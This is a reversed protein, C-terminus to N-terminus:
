SLKKTQKVRGKTGSIGWLGELGNNRDTGGEEGRDEDEM